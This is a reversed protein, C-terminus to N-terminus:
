CAFSLFRRFARFMSNKDRSRAAIKRDIDPNSFTSFDSLELYEYTKNDDM